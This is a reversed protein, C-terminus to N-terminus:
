RKRGALHIRHMKFYLAIRFTTLPHPGLVKAARHMGPTFFAQNRDQISNKVVGLSLKVIQAFTFIRMPGTSIQYSDSLHQLARTTDRHAIANQSLQGVSSTIYVYVIEESVYYKYNLFNLDRLFCQDEGSRLSNFTNEGVVTRHFVMRTFGPMNALQFLFNRSSYDVYHLDAKSQRTTSSAIQGIGVLANHYETQYILNLFAEADPLDDSDWFCIWNAKAQQIGFNRTLGPSAFKVNFKEFNVENFGNLMKVLEEETGDGADDHVIVVQIPMDVCSFLTTILNELRGAMSYIPIVATLQFSIDKKM